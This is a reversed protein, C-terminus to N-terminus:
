IVIKKACAGLDRRHWTANITHLLACNAVINMEGLKGTKDDEFHAAIIFDVVALGTHLYPPDSNKWIKFDQVKPM